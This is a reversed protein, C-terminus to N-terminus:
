RSGRATGTSATIETGTLEVYVDEMTPERVAVGSLSLGKDRVRAIIELVSPAAQGPVKVVVADDGESTTVEHGNLVRRLDDMSGPDALRFEVSTAGYAAKLEDVSGRAVVSGCDLVAVHDALAEAEELYQTTLFVTTGNGRLRRIEGWLARRSQPDLGTTPEDLFLIPPETIFATALDLRRQMGGSYSAIPRDAHEVLGFFELLELARKRRDSRALGWLGASLELHERGTMIPDLGIEQMTAGIRRRVEHPARVVDYGAVSATGSTPSALTTLIRVTTTKGSGNQGLYAFIEGPSVSFDVSELAKIGGSFEKALARAIIAPGTSADQTAKRAAVGRRAVLTM